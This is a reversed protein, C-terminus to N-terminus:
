ICKLVLNSKRYVDEYIGLFLEKIEKSDHYVLKIEINM